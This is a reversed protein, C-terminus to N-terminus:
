QSKSPKRTDAGLGASGCGVIVVDFPGVDFERQDAKKAVVAPPDLYRM